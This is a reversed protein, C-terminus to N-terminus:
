VADRGGDKADIQREHEVNEGQAQREAKETGEPATTAAQAQAGAETPHTQPGRKGTVSTQAANGQVDERGDNTPNPNGARQDPQDSQTDQQDKDKDGEGDATKFPDADDEEHQKRKLEGTRMEKGHQAKEPKRTVKGALEEKLGQIKDFTTAKQQVGYEPGLGVAGAHLQKPYGGEPETTSGNQEGDAGGNQQQSAQTDVHEAEPRRDVDQPAKGNASHQSSAVSTM